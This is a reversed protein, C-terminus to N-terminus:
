KKEVKEIKREAKQVEDPPLGTYSRQHFKNNRYDLFLHCIHLYIFMNRVTNGMDIRYNRQLLCYCFLIIIQDNKSVFKNEYLKILSELFLHNEM